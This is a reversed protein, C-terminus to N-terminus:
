HGIGDDADAGEETSEVLLLIREEDKFEKVLRAFTIEDAGEQLISEVAAKYGRKKLIRRVGDVV